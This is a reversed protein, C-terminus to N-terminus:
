LRQVQQGKERSHEKRIKEEQFSRKEYLIKEDNKEVRGLGALGERGRWDRM